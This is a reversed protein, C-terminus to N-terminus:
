RDLLSLSGAPLKIWQKGTVRLELSRAFGPTTEGRVLDM